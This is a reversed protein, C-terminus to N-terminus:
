ADLATALELLDSVVYDPGSGPAPPPDGGRNVWAVPLGLRRAPEVDHFRSRAVHLIGAREGARRIAERFHAPGPKYSRVQEATVSFDFDVELHRLTEALLDDDVNSLIALRHSRRLRRLAPNTDAFPPWSGLSRELFRAREASLPWGLKRGVRRATERLVERYPRYAESEVLREVQGYAELVRDAQLGVGDATAETLFADAIGREWDILTGYCDFTLITFPRAAM